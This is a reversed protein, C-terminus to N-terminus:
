FTGLGRRLDSSNRRLVSDTKLLVDVGIHSFLFEDSTIEINDSWRDKRIEKIM